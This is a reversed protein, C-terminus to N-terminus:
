LELSYLRSDYRNIFLLKNSSIRLNVADIVLESASFVELFSNKSVDIQYIFDKFYVARKLYDDPLIM